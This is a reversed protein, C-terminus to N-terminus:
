KGINSSYVWDTYFACASLQHLVTLELVCLLLICWIVLTVDSSVFRRILLVGSTTVALGVTAALIVVILIAVGARTNMFASECENEGM